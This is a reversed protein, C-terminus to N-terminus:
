AVSGSSSSTWSKGSWSKGSWSKGTWADGSWSKGSWSKGTWVESSWSKGSWSKGSWSKGSWSKGTWTTDCWCTGTWETGNWWGDTWATGAIAKPAWAAGSWPRGMIDVEGRLEIGDATLHETGRAGELTGTGTAYTYSQRFSTPLTTRSALDVNIRGAGVARYGETSAVPTATTKLLSKVGDPTLEPRADLLLAVAGATVATAQSTGSGRFFRDNVVAGPHADDISSGPDRLSAISVGPAAVDVWRTSSGRSSFPAAKDDAASTTGVLDVAGVAVVFPNVAPDVLSPHDTGENGGAVVVTIGNRWAAEVATSLPDLRRDQLGDTGYSLSIVKINMGPDNRHQVVWDIAAIVQSVDVAGERDGVKVNVIHAGPAVGKFATGSSDRGGIIGAMHTGHGFTDLHQYSASQSEFSLDPGNVIKGSVSLGEVPAVGSDILAVGIGTGDFGRSWMSQAGVAKTVDAIPTPPTTAGDDWGPTLIGVVGGVVGTVTGLLGGILGAHAPAAPGAGVVVASLAAVTAGKRVFAGWRNKM